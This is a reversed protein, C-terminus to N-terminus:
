RLTFKKQQQQKNTLKGSVEEQDLAPVSSTWPSAALDITGKCYQYSIQRGLSNVRSLSRLDRQYVM